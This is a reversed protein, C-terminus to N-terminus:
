PPRGHFYAIRTEDGSGSPQQAVRSAVDHAGRPPLNVEDPRINDMVPFAQHITVNVANPVVTQQQGGPPEPCLIHGGEYALM